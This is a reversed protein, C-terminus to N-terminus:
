GKIQVGKSTAGLQNLATAYTVSVRCSVRAGVDGSRPNFKKKTQNAIATGGRLWQYRAKTDPWGHNSTYTCTLESGSKPTGAVKATVIPGVGTALRGVQLSTSGPAPNVM